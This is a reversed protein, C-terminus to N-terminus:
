PKGAEVLWSDDAALCRAPEARRGFRSRSVSCRMGRDSRLQLVRHRPGRSLVLRGGAALRYSSSAARANNGSRYAKLLINREEVSMCIIGDM